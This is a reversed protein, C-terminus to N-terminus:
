LGEEKSFIPHDVAFDSIVEGGSKTALGRAGTGLADDIYGSALTHPTGDIVDVFRSGTAAGAPGAAGFAGVAAVAVALLARHTRKSRRFVPHRRNGLGPTLQM